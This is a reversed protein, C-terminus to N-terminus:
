EWWDSWGHNRSVSTSYRSIEPLAWRIKALLEWLGTTLNMPSELTIRQSPAMNLSTWVNGERPEMTNWGTEMPLQCYAM